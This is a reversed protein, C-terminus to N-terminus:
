VESVSSLSKMSGGISHFELGSLTETSRAGGPVKVSEFSSLGLFVKRRRGRRAKRRPQLIFYNRSQFPESPLVRKNLRRCTARLVVTPTLKKNTRNENAM